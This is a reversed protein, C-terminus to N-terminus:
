ADNKAISSILIKRQELLSEFFSSTELPTDIPEKIIPMATSFSCYSYIDEENQLPQNKCKKFFM